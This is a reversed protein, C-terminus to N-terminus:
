TCLTTFLNKWNAAKAGANIIEIMTGGALKKDKSPDDTQEKINQM